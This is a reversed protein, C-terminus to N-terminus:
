QIPVFVGDKFTYVKKQALNYKMLTKYDGLVYFYVENQIVNFSSLAYVNMLETSIGNKLHFLKNNNNLYLISGDKLPAFSRMAEKSILASKQNIPLKVSRLEGTTTQFYLTENEIVFSEVSSDINLIKTSEISAGTGIASLHIKRVNKELDLFYVESKLVTASGPVIAFNLVKENRLKSEQVNDSMSEHVRYLKGGDEVNAYYLWEGHLMLNNAAKSLVTASQGTYINISRIFSKEEDLYFIRGYGYNLFKGARPLKVESTTGTTYLSDKESTEFFHIYGMKGQELTFGNNRLNFHTNGVKNEDYKVSLAIKQEVKNNKADTYTCTITVLKNPYNCILYKNSFLEIQTINKNTNVVCSGKVPKSSDSIALQKLKGSADYTYAKIDVFESVQVSYAQGDPKIELNNLKLLLLKHQTITKGNTTLTYGFKAAIENAKKQSIWFVQGKNQSFIENQCNFKVGNIVLDHTSLDNSGSKLKPYASVKLKLLDSFVYKANFYTQDTLKKQFEAYKAKDKIDNLISSRSIVKDSASQGFAGIVSISLIVCLSIIWKKM